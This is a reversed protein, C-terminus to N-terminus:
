LCCVEIPALKHKQFKSKKYAIVMTGWRYPAAWIKGESDIEGENNRRLYVQSKTLPFSVLSFCVLVFYRLPLEPLPMLLSIETYDCCLLDNM